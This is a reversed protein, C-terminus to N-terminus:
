RGEGLLQEQFEVWYFVASEALQPGSCHRFGQLVVALHTSVNIRAFTNLLCSNTVVLENDWPRLHPAWSLIGQALFHARLQPGPELTLHLCLRSM